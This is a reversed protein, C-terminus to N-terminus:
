PFDKLVDFPILESYIEYPVDEGFNRYGIDEHGAISWMDETTSYITYNHVVLTDWDDSEEIIYTLDHIQPFIVGAEDRKKVYSTVDVSSIESDVGLANTKISEELFEKLEEVTICERNM